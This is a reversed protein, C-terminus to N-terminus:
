FASPCFTEGGEIRNWGSRYMWRAPKELILVLGEGSRDLDCISQALRRLVRAEPYAPANTEAMAWDGLRLRYAGGFPEALAKSKSDLRLWTERDMAVSGLLSNGSYLDFAPSTDVRGTLSLPPYVLVFTLVFRRIWSHGPKFLAAPGVTSRWFLCPAVVLMSLNWPWVVANWDLAWPGLMALLFLHMGAIEVVATRRTRPFLLAIGAGGELFPAMAGLAYVPTQMGTFTLPSALWPFLADSFTANM